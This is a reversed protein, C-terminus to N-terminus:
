LLCFMWLVILFHDQKSYIWGRLSCLAEWLEAAVERLSAANARRGTKATEDRVKAKRKKGQYIDM